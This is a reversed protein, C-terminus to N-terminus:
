INLYETNPKSLIKIGTGKSHFNYFHLSGPRPPVPYFEPFPLWNYQKNGLLYHFAGRLM